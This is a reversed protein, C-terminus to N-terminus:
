VYMSFAVTYVIQSQFHYGVAKISHNLTSNWITRNNHYDPDSRAHTRINCIHYFNSLGRASIRYLTSSRHTRQPPPSELFSPLETGRTSDNSPPRVDSSTQPSKHMSTETMHYLLFTVHGSLPVDLQQLHVRQLGDQQQRPFWWLSM